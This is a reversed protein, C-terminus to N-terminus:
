PRVCIKRREIFKDSSFPAILSQFYNTAIVAAFTLGRLEAADNNLKEDKNIKVFYNHARWM